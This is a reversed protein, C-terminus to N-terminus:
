EGVDVKKGKRVKNPPLPVKGISNYNKENIKKYRGM